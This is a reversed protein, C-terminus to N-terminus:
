SGAIQICVWASTAGRILKKNAAIKELDESSDDALSSTAVGWRLGIDLDELLDLLDRRWLLVRVGPAPVVMEEGELALEIGEGAVWGLIM